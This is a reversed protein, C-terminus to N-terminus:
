IAGYKVEEFEDWAITDLLDDMIWWIEIWKRKIEDSQGQSASYRQLDGLITRLRVMQEKSGM